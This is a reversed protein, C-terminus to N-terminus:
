EDGHQSGTGVGVGFGSGVFLQRALVTLAITIAVLVILLGLPILGILLGRWPSDALASTQTSVASDGSSPTSM